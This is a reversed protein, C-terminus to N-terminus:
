SVANLIRVKFTVINDISKYILLKSKPKPEADSKEFVTVLAGFESSRKEQKGSHLAIPNQYITQIVSMAIKWHSKKRM